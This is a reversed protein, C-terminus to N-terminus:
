ELARIEEESREAQGVELWMRGARLRPLLHDHVRQASRDREVEAALRLAQRGEKTSGLMALSVPERERMGGRVTLLLGVLAEAALVAVVILPVHRAADWLVLFQPEPQLSWIVIVVAFAALVLMAVGALRSGSRSRDVAVIAAGAAPAVLVLALLPMSVMGAMEGTALFVAMFIGLAGILPLSRRLLLSAGLLVSAM